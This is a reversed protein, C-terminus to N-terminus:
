EVIWQSVKFHSADTHDDIDVVALKQNPKLGISHRLLTTASRMITSQNVNREIAMKKISDLTDPTLRFSAQVYKSDEAPAPTSM